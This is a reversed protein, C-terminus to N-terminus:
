LLINKFEQPSLPKSYLYGQALTCGMEQLLRAQEQTEVGEAISELGLGKAMSIMAAVLSADMSNPALSKVFHSDIKLYDFNFNKLSALSSYGTGFDDVSFKCGAEQLMAIKRLVRQTQILMMRETIELVIRQPSVGSETIWQIWESSNHNSSNFQAASVNIAISLNKNDGMTKLFVLVEQLVWDGIEVILGSEEAIDIFSAPAVVEGTDRHWRLLAEAHDIVGTNLNIIPQYELRFQKKAMADRLESIIGARYNAKLQLATTFYQFGNRGNAKAAYMAQDASLLLAKGDNGDNPYISVGFSATAYVMQDQIPIPEVLHKLIQRIIPDAQEPKDLQGLLIVFEDGGIRAVTDTDRVESRLRQAVIKLLEDGFDHGRSDNIDKFNDLDIYIVALSSQSRAAQKISQELRDLMLRRNPLGTLPDFNAQQNILERAKRQDTVESILAVRQLPSGEHDFTSYISIFRLAEEGDKMRIWAQGEWRGVAELSTFIDSYSRAGHRKVLLDSFGHGVLDTDQFGSFAKFTDNAMLIRNDADSIVVADGMARYVASTVELLDDSRRQETVDVGYIVMRDSTSFCGWSILRVSGDKCSTRTELPIFPVGQEQSEKVRKSWEAEVEARYGVDPYGLSWWASPQTFDGTVYGLIKTFQPNLYDIVETKLNYTVMLIPTNGVIERFREESQLIVKTAEWLSQNKRHFSEVVIGCLLGALGMFGLYVWILMPGPHSILQRDFFADGYYAGFMAQVILMLFYLMSGRPGFCYAFYTMILIAIYGRGTLDVFEKFWGLFVAQGILFALGFSLIFAIYKRRGWSQDWSQCLILMIPTVFALGFFDGTFWKAYVMLLNESTLLGAWILFQINLTTSLVAGVVSAGLLRGYDSLSQLHLNFKSHGTLRALLFYTAFCGLLSGFALQMGMFLDHGGGMEGLTAGVFLFPWYQVGLVLLMGLGIGAPIWIVSEGVVGSFYKLIFISILAHAIAAAIAFAVGKKTFQSSSFPLFSLTM